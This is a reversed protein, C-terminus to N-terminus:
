TTMDKIPEAPVGGVITGEPVDRVVVANAAVIAGKGIRVGSLITAKSGIWVNDGIEVPGKAVLEREMPPIDLQDAATTGHANDSITVNMGLLVSEGISIREIATLHCHAGLSTNRGIEIIPDFAKGRYTTWATIVADAGITAGPGVSVCGPNVLTVSRAIRAGPGFARFRRANAATYAIDALLSVRNRVRGDLIPSLARGLFAALKESSRLITAM